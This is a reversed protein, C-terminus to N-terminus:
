VISSNTIIFSNKEYNLNKQNKIECRRPGCKMRHPGCSTVTFIIFLFFVIKRM